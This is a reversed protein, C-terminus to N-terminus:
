MAMPMENDFQIKGRFYNQIGQDYITKLHPRYRKLNYLDMEIEKELAYVVELEEDSLGDM